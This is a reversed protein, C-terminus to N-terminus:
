PYSLAAGSMAREQSGPRSPTKPTHGLRPGASRWLNRSRTMKEFIRQTVTAAIFHLISLVFHHERLQNYPVREPFLISLPIRPMSYDADNM